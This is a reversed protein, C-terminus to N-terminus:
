SLKGGKTILGMQVDDPLSYLVSSNSIVPEEEVYDIKELERMWAALLALLGRLLLVGSLIGIALGSNM